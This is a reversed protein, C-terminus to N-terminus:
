NSVKAKIIWLNNKFDYDAADIQMTSNKQLLVENERNAYGSANIAEIFMGKTNKQPSLIWLIGKDTQDIGDVGIFDKTFECDTSTAMFAPQIVEIKNDLIFEKIKNIAEKNESFSAEEMLSSLSTKENNMKLNNFIEYGERRYLKIDEPLTQKDIISSLNEKYETIKDFIPSYAVKFHGRLTNQVANALGQGSKGKWDYITNIEDSNFDAKAINEIMKFINKDKKCTKYTKPNKQLILFSTFIENFHTKFLEKGDKNNIFSKFENVMNNDIPENYLTKINDSYKGYKEKLKDYEESSVTKQLKDNNEKYGFDFLKKKIDSIKIENKDIIVNSTIALAATKSMLDHSQAIPNQYCKTHFRTKINTPKISIPNIKM